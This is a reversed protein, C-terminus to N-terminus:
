DDGSVELRVDAFSYPPLPGRLLAACGLGELRAVGQEGARVFRDQAAQSVLYARSAAGTTFGPATGGAADSLAALAADLDAVAAAFESRL